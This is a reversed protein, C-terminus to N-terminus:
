MPHVAAAQPGKDGQTPAYQVRAGVTLEDFSTGQVSNAHFYVQSGDDGRLFGYGDETFLRVVVGQPREDHQKVDGRRTEAYAKLQRGAATFAARIATILDEEQQRDSVIEKGPVDVFVRVRYPGGTRHHNGPDDVVVRVGTIRDYYRELKEVQKDILRRAQPTATSDNFTVDLPEQM